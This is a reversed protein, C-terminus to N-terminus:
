TREAEAPYFPIILLIKEIYITLLHNDVSPISVLFVWPEAVCNRLPDGQHIERIYLLVQVIVEHACGMVRIIFIYILQCVFVSNNYIFLRGADLVLIKRGFNLLLLHLLHYPSVPVMRANHEPAHPILGIM